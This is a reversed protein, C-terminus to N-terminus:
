FRYGLNVGFVGVTYSNGGDLVVIARADPRLELHPVLNLRVGGGFSLAPDTFSRTGWAGSTPVVVSGLRRGYFGPMQGVGWVGAGVATCDGYGYGMGPGRMYGTGPSPCFASGPGFPAAIAGMLRAHGLDFAARYLGGGGAAYPVVRRGLPLLNVLVNGTLTFADAGAGRGLWAGQGELSWRENIDYVVTAGALPGATSRTAASGGLFAITGGPGATEPTQALAAAPLLAVAALVLIRIVLM